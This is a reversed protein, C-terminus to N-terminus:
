FHCMEAQLISYIVFYITASVSKAASGTRLCATVFFVTFVFTVIVISISTATTTMKTRVTM